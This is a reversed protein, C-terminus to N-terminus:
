RRQFFSILVCRRVIRREGMSQERDNREDWLILYSIHFSIPVFALFFWSFDLYYFWYDFDVAFALAAFFLPWVIAHIAVSHFLRGDIMKRLGVMLYTAFALYAPGFSTSALVFSFWVATRNLYDM